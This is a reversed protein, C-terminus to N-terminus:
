VGGTVNSGGARFGPPNFCVVPGPCPASTNAGASVAYTIAGSSKATLTITGNGPSASVITSAVSDSNIAAALSSAIAVLDYNNSANPAYTTTIQHGNNITVWVTGQDCITEGGPGGVAFTRCPNNLSMGISGSSNTAPATHSKLSNGNISLTATAPSAAQWDGPEDVEVLRGLGDSCSKRQNGIEDTVTTCAGGSYDTTVVSGDQRTVKTARGLADYQTSTVGYTPDTTLRFPNTISYTRALGDFTTDTEDTGQPDTTLQTKYVHGMGDSTAVTNVYRSSDLKKQTTITPPYPTDSYSVQTQGFPNGTSDYVDSEKFRRLPDELGNGSKAYYYYHTVEGNPDTISRLAGDNFAYQFFSKHGLADTLSTLYANTPG